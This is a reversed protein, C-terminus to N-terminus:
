KLNYDCWKKYVDKTDKKLFIMVLISNGTKDDISTYMDIPFVRNKVYLLQQKQNVIRVVDKAHYNKARLNTLIM